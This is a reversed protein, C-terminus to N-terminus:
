TLGKSCRIFPWSCYTLMGVVQRGAKSILDQEAEAESVTDRLREQFADVRIDGKFFVLIHLSILVNDGYGFVRWPRLVPYFCVWPPTGFPHNAATKEGKALELLIDLSPYIQDLFERRYTTSTSFM